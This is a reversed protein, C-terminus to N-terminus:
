SLFQYQMSIGFEGRLRRRGGGAYGPKRKRGGKLGLRLGARRSPSLPPGREKDGLAASQPPKESEGLFFPTAARLRKAARRAPVEPGSRGGLPARLAGSTRAPRLAAWSPQAASRPAGRRGATRQRLKIILLEVDLTLSHFSETQNKEYCIFFRDFVSSTRRRM